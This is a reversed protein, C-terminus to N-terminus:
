FADSYAKAFRNVGEKIEEDNATAFNLRITNEGGNIHFPHGPMVVLKRKLAAEYLRMADTGEKTRVFIFMGGNPRNWRLEPSMHDDLLDLMLNSKREYEKRIRGLYVDLDIMDLFRDMVNQSFTNAHLSSSEVCKMTMEIMEDPVIM